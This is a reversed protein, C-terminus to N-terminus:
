GPHTIQFRLYRITGNVIETEFQDLWHKVTALDIPPAGALLSGAGVMLLKRKLKALLATLGSSEDASETVDFGAANFLGRYSDEDQADTLCTWPAIVDAISDPLQGFLAMDTLGIRGGPKLVRRMETLAAPKDALLSFVCESVIGDFEDDEFPLTHVDAALFSIGSDGSRLAAREINSASADIGTVEFDFEDALLMASTGSGCGIDLVGAAAPLQLAAATRRTLETGGPHFSEDAIQRVWDQEYFASCCSPIPGDNSAVNSPRDNM